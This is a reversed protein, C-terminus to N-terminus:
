IELEQNLVQKSLDCLAVYLQDVQSGWKVRLQGKEPLSSLYLYILQLLMGVM